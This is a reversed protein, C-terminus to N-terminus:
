NILLNYGKSEEPIFIKINYYGIVPPISFTSIIDDANDYHTQQLLRGLSNYVQITIPKPTKLVVKVSFIGDKSPNPYLKVEKFLSNQNQDTYDSQNLVSLQKQLECGIKNKVKLTFAGTGDLLFPPHDVINGNPKVLTYQYNEYNIDLEIPTGTWLYNDQINQNSMGELDFTKTIDPLNNRHFNIRYQSPVLDSFTILHTDLSQNEVINLNNKVDFLTYSLPLLADSVNIKVIGNQLENCTSVVSIEPNNQSNNLTFYDIGNHDSDWNINRYVYLSDNLKEGSFLEATDNQFNETTRYLKLKPPQSLGLAKLNFYV